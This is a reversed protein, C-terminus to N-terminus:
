FKNLNKVNLNYSITMFNDELIRLIDEYKM